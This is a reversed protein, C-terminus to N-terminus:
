EFYQCLPNKPNVFPSYDDVWKGIYEGYGEGKMSVYNETRGGNPQGNEWNEYVM